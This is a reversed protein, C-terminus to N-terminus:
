ESHHIYISEGRMDPAQSSWGRRREGTGVGPSTVGSPSAQETAAASGERSILAAALEARTGCALPTGGRRRLLARGLGARIM